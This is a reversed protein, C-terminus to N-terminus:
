VYYSFRRSANTFVIWGLVLFTFSFAAASLWDAVGPFTGQFLILQLFNLLYYMPNLWLLWGGAVDTILSAPYIVPTLYMYGMLLVPFFEGIDPFLVALTSVLLSVGLTFAALFILSFPLLLASTSIPTGTALYIIVLPVLAFLMNIMGTIATALIMATRPMYIKKSLEYGYLITNLSFQTTQAFFNWGLLNTLIYAPYVGRMEFVRSFVITLIVMSALPNLMTWLVGLFSRKYRAVLDRYVLQRILDPYRFISLIEEIPAPPSKRSDYLEPM